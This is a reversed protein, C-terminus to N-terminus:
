PMRAEIPLEDDGARRVNEEDVDGDPMIKSDLISGCLNCILRISLSGSPEFIQEERVDLISCSCNKM